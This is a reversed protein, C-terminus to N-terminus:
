RDFAWVSVGERGSGVGVAKWPRLATSSTRYTTNAKTGPVPTRTFSLVPMARRRRERFPGRPQADWRWMLRATSRNSVLLKLAQM